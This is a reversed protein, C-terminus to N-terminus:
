NDLQDLPIPAWPLVNDNHIPQWERQVFYSAATQCHPSQLTKNADISCPTAAM